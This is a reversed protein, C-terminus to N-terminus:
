MRGSPPPMRVQPMAPQFFRDQAPSGAFLQNHPGTNYLQRTILFVLLYCAHSSSSFVHQLRQSCMTLVTQLHSPDFPVVKLIDESTKKAALARMSAGAGM